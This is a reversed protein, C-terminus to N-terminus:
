QALTTVLPFVVDVVVIVWLGRTADLAPAIPVLDLVCDFVATAVPELMRGILEM